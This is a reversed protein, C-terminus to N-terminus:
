MLDKENIYLYCNITKQIVQKNKPKKEEDDTSEEDSVLENVNINIENLSKGRYENGKGNGMM